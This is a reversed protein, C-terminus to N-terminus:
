PSGCRKRAKFIAQLAKDDPGAELESLQNSHDSRIIEVLVIGEFLLHETM